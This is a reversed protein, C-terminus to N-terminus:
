LHGNSKKHFVKKADNFIIVYNKECILIIFQVTQNRLLSAGKFKTM